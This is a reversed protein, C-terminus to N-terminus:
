LMAKEIPTLHRISTFLAYYSCEDKEFIIAPAKISITFGSVTVVSDLFTSPLSTNDVEMIKVKDGIKFKM